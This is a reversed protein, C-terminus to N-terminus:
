REGRGEGERQMVRFVIGFLRGRDISELKEVFFSEGGGYMGLCM